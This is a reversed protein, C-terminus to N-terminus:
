QKEKEEEQEPQEQQEQTMPPKEQCHQNKPKNCENESTSPKLKL